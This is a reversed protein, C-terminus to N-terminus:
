LKQMLRSVTQKLMEKDIGISSTSSVQSSVSTDNLIKKMIEPTVIIDSDYPMIEVSKGQSLLLQKLDKLTLSATTDHSLMDSSVDHVTGTLV